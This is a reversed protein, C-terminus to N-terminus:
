DSPCTCADQIGEIPAIHGIPNGDDNGAIVLRSGDGLDHVIEAPFKRLCRYVDVVVVGRVASSFDGAGVSRLYSELGPLALPVDDALHEAVDLGVAVEHDVPVVRVRSFCSVRETIGDELVAGIHSYAVAERVACVGLLVLSREVAEAVVEDARHDLPDVPVAEIVHHRSVSGERSREDLGEGDEGLAKLDFRFERDVSNVTAPADEVYRYGVAIAGLSRLRLEVGDTVADFDDHHDAREELIVSRKLEEAENGEYQCNDAEDESDGDDDFVKLRSKNRAERGGNKRDTKDEQCAECQCSPEDEVGDGLRFSPM